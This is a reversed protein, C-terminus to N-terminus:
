PFESKGKKFSRSEQWSVGLRRIGENQEKYFVKVRDFLKLLEIAATGSNM